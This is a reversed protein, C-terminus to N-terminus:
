FDMRNSELELLAKKREIGGSFGTLGGDAGIVRHCPILILIPNRAIATAVARTKEKGGLRIALQSYSVVEGFPIQQLERWVNLQFVTGRPSVSLEFSKLKRDFYKSIQSKLDKFVQNNIVKDLNDLTTNHFRLDLINTQDYTLKMHGLPTDVYAIYPLNGLKPVM